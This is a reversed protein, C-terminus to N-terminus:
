PKIRTQTRRGAQWDALPIQPLRFQDRTYAYNSPSAMRALLDLRAVDVYCKEADLVADDRVHMAVVNAIVLRNQPALLLLDKLTCEYAIPSEAIRPVKIRSSPVTTLGAEAIEDVEPPFPVATVNMAEALDAPVMNIVFEGTRMINNLTDKMGADTEGVGICVIPPGGSFANFFSFPAANNRGSEDQSVVWAIPRPVVTSTILKYANRGHIKDFDFLM